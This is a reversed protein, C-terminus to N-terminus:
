YKNFVITTETTGNSCFIFLQEGDIVFHTAYTLEHFLTTWEPEAAYTSVLNTFTINNHDTITYTGNYMNSVAIGQIGGSANTAPESFSATIEGDNVTPWTPQQEKTIQMDDQMYYSVKWDGALQEDYYLPDNHNGCAMTILVLAVLLSVMKITTKM